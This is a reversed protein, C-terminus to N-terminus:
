PGGLFLQAVGVNNDVASDRGPEGVLLDPHGDLDVDGAAAVRRGLYGGSYGGLDDGFIKLEADNLGYSGTLPGRFLFAAGAPVSDVRYYGCGVLLEAYGDGDIDGPGAATSGITENSSAGEIEVPATALRRSGTAPGYFVWIRGNGYTFDDTDVMGIAIDDLGDGNVDGAGKLAGSGAYCETSTGPYYGDADDISTAGGAPGLASGLLLYAAGTMDSGDAPNGTLVDRLGDGNVDGAAGVNDGLYFEGAVSYTMSGSGLVGTIPGSNVLLASTSSGFGPRGIAVDDLGDGDTDGLMAVNSGLQSDATGDMVLGPADLVSLTGSVPGYFFAALGGRNVVGDYGSAGIVFDSLGDGDLDGAGSVAGGEEEPAPGLVIAAADTQEYTGSFPGLFLSVRWTSGLQSMSVGAGSGVLLDPWGDGDVDGAAKCPAGFYEEAGEGWFTAAANASQWADDLGGCDDDIGNEWDVASPNVSADADDCDDSTESTGSPQECAVIPQSADGHGDGDADLYWTTDGLLSDDEDDALGDCDDDVGNCIESADPNVAADDDDCDSADSVYGSPQACSASTAAPDGFGDGDADEYWTGAGSLSDDDDDTLGDCDDDAGNCIESAGPNVAASLDDCDSDDAVFSTPASCADQQTSSDGYGDGDADLYWSTADAPVGEDAVGDCDDDVGNCLETAGPYVSADHDDCDGQKVTFGDGDDDDECGLLAAL